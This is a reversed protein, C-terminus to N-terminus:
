QHPDTPKESPKSPPLSTPPIGLHYCILRVDSSMTQQRDLFLEVKSELANIRKDHDRVLQGEAGDAKLYTMIGTSAFLGSIIAVITAFVNNKAQTTM